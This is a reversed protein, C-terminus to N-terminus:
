WCWVPARDTRPLLLSSCTCVTTAIPPHPAGRPHTFRQGEHLVVLRIPVLPVGIM